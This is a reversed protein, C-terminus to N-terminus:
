GHWISMLEGIRQQIRAYHDADASLTRLYRQTYSLEARLRAIEREADVQANMVDVCAQLLLANSRLARRRSALLRVLLKQLRDVHRWAFVARGPHEQWGRPFQMM